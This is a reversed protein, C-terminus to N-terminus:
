STPLPARPRGRLAELLIVIGAALVFLCVLPLSRAATGAASGDHRILKTSVGREHLFAATVGDVGSIYRTTKGAATVLIDLTQRGNEYRLLEVKAEPHQSIIERAANQPIREIRWSGPTSLVLVVLFSLWGATCVTAVAVWRLSPSKTPSRHANSTSGPQRLARQRWEWGCVAVAMGALAFVIQLWLDTWYGTPFGFRVTGGVALVALTLTM